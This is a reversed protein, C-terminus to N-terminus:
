LLREKITSFYWENLQPFEKHPIFINSITMANNLIFLYPVNLSDVGFSFNSADYLDIDHDIIRKMLLYNSLSTFKAWVQIKDRGIRKGFQETYYLISDVCSKCNLESYRVILKRGDNVIDSICVVDGDSNRITTGFDITRESDYKVLSVNDNALTKLLTTNIETESNRQTCVLYIM